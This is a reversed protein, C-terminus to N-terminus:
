IHYDWIDFIKYTTDYNISRIFNDFTDYGGYEDAVYFNGERNITKLVTDILPGYKLGSFQAFADSSTLVTKVLLDWRSRFYAEKFGEKFKITLNDEDLEFLDPSVKADNFLHLHIRAAEDPFKAEEIPEMYDCFSPLTDWSYYHLKMEPDNNYVDIPVIGYVNSHM